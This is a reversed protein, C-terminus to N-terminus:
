PGATILYSPCAGCRSKSVPTSIRRRLGFSRRPKPSRSWISPWTMARV